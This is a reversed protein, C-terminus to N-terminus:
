FTIFSTLVLLFTLRYFLTFHHFFQWYQLSTLSNTLSNWGGGHHLPLLQVDRRRRQKAHLRSVGWPWVYVGSGASYWPQWPLLLQLAPCLSLLLLSVKYTLFPIANSYHHSSKLNKFSIKCWMVQFYLYWISSLIM